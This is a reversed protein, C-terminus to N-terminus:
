LDGCMDRCLSLLEAYEKREDADGYRELDASCAHLQKIARAPQGCEEILSRALSLRIRHSPLKLQSARDLAHDYLAVKAWLDDEFDALTEILVPHDGYVARLQMLVERLAKLAPEYRPDDEEATADVVAFGANVVRMWDEHTFAHERNIQSM